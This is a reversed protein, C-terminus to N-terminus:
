VFDLVVKRVHYAEIEQNVLSDADSKDKQNLSCINKTQKEKNNNHKMNYLLDIFQSVAKDEQVLRILEKVISRRSDDAEEQQAFEKFINTAYKYLQKQKSMNPYDNNEKLKIICPIDSGIKTGQRTVIHLNKTNIVDHKQVCSLVNFNKKKNIKDLM